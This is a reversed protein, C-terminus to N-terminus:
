QLILLMIQIHQLNNQTLKKLQFFNLGLTHLSRILALFEDFFSGSHIGTIYKHYWNYDMPIPDGQKIVNGINEM